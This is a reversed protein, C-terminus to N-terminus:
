PAFTVLGTKAVGDHTARVIVVRTGDAALFVFQGSAAASAGTPTAWHPLTDTGLTTFSFNLRQVTTGGTVLAVMGDSARSDLHRVGAPVSEQTSQLQTLTSGTGTVDFVSGCSDVVHQGNQTVWITRASCYFSVYGTYSISGTGTGTGNNVSYREVDYADSVYLVAGTPGGVGNGGTVGSSSAGSQTVRVIQGSASPFAYAHSAAVALDIAPQSVPAPWTESISTGLTVHHVFNGDSVVAWTGDDAVDVETLPAGGIAFSTELGTALDLVWLMGFPGTPGPSPNAGVLVLKGATHAHDADRVDHALDKVHRAVDVTVTAAGESSPRDTVGYRLTFTGVVDPVFSVAAASSLLDGAAYRTGTPLPAVITWAHTAPADGNTDTSSGTVSLAPTTDAPAGLNWYRAPGASAVPADNACTYTASDSVTNVGDSVELTATWAGEQAQDTCSFTGSFTGTCASPGAVSAATGGPPTVRWTCTLPDNDADSVTGSLTQAVNRSAHAVDTGASVVPPTNVAVLTFSDETTLRSRQSAYGDTVVLRFV